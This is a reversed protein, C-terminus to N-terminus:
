SISRVMPLPLKATTLLAVCRTVLALTPRGPVRRGVLTRPRGADSLRPAPPPRRGGPSRRRPLWHTPTFPCRQPGPLGAFPATRPSSGALPFSWRVPTLPSGPFQAVPCPFPTGPATSPSQFSPAPVGLPGATQALLVGSGAILPYQPSSPLPM